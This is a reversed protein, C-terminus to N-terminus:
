LDYVPELPRLNPNVILPEPTLSVWKQIVGSSVTKDIKDRYAKPPPTNGVVVFPIRSSERYGRTIAAKGAAKLISDTRLISARGAHGDYDSTPRCLNDKRWNWIISMKVEFLCEIASAPVPGEPLDQDLIAIDAASGNTFGLQPCIVGRKAFHKGRLDDSNQIVSQILALAFRETKDSVQNNRHNFDSVKLNGSKCDPCKKSKPGFFARQSYGCDEQPCYITSLWYDNAAVIEQEVSVDWLSLGNMGSGAYKRNHRTTAM